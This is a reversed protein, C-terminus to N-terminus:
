IEETPLSNDVLINGTSYGYSVIAFNGGTPMASLFRPELDQANSEIVLFLGIFILLLNLNKTQM